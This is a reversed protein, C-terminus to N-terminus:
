ITEFIRKVHAQLSFGPAIEPEPILYTSAIADKAIAARLTPIQTTLQDLSTGAKKATAVWDYVTKFYQQQRQPTEANGLPGHGAVLINPKLAAMGDLTAIWAKIDADRFLNFPGNLCSDGTFLIRENPLWVVGDGLTHGAGLHLLEVRRHKDEIVMNQSFTVPPALLPWESLDTRRQAMLEWRGPNGGYYGTEYRRLESIMGEFAIATAGQQAWYRNGYIHDGHHHTNFIFRIPKDTTKRIEQLIVSAAAPYNADIVLVFDDFIIWGNNCESEQIKGSSFYSTKGKLFYVGKAIEQAPEFLPAGPVPTEHVDPEDLATPQPEILPGAAKTASLGALPLAAFAGLNKILTRRKM